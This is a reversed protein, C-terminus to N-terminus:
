LRRVIDQAVYQRVIRVSQAAPRAQYAALGAEVLRHDSRAFAVEIAFVDAHRNGVKCSALYSALYSSYLGFNAAFTPQHAHIAAQALRRRQVSPLSRTYKASKTLVVGM